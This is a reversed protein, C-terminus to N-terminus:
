IPLAIIVLVSEQVSYSNDLDQRQQEKCFREYEYAEQISRNIANRFKVKEREADERQREVQRRKEQLAANISLGYLKKITDSHQQERVIDETVKDRIKHYRAREERLQKKADIDKRLTM